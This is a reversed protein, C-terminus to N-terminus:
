PHVKETFDNRRSLQDANSITIKQAVRKQHCAARGTMAHGVAREPGKCHRKKVWSCQYKALEYHHVGGKSIGHILLIPTKM